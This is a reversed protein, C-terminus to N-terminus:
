RRRPAPAGADLGAALRDIAGTLAKRVAGARAGSVVTEAVVETRSQTAAGARFFRRRVRGVVVVPDGEDLGVAAASPDFWAVPVTEGKGDAGPVTVQMSMLRTGSDLVREEPPRSLRGVLAVVNM